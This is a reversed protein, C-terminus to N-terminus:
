LIEATGGLRSYEQFFDPYSKTVAETGEIIVPEKCFLTAIAMSMVMRHDNYGSVTCGGALSEQGQIILDDGQIQINAGLSSLCDQTAALRDSEKIRLRKLNRIWTTGPRLAAAVSLIPILDPIERGDIEWPVEGTWVAASLLDLIAKDGQLSQPNLGTVELNQAGDFNQMGCANRQTQLTKAVLWFAANSYDGEVTHIGSQYIQGGPLDYRIGAASGTGVETVSVQIGFKTIADLTLDLYARSEIPGDVLITSDGALMPLAFLLGSIYQSSIDGPIRYLGPVLRGQITFIRGDAREAEAPLQVQVGHEQLVKILPEMPREPLKGKGLFTATLGLAAAVPVLFRLTSGSELCQIQKASTDAPQGAIGDSARDLGTVRITGTVHSDPVLTAGMASMAGMTAEMDKSGSIGHITSQGAALSACILMRHAVSKSPPAQVTGSLQGPWVRMTTMAHSGNSM